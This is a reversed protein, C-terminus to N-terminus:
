SSPLQGPSQKTAPQENELVRLKNRARILARVDPTLRIVDGATAAKPMQVRADPKGTTGSGGDSTSAAATLPLCCVALGLVAVRLM